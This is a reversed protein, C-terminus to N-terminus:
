KIDILKYNIKGSPTTIVFSDGKKKGLVAKGFPSSTSLKGQATDAEESGVIQYTSSNSEDEKKVVVSSGIGVTDTTHSESIVVAMKLLSELRSIRDEINAQMDRAEHYEANESLDGLAKAYELNDAVEKRRVKKLYDLEKKFEDLKEPTLYVKEEKM